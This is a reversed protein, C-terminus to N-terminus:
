IEVSLNQTSKPPCHLAIHIQFTSSTTLSQVAVQTIEFFAISGLRV